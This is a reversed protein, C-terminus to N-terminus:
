DLRLRGSALQAVLESDGALFDVGPLDAIGVWEIAAFVRNALTGAYEPILFFTLTIPERDPYQHHTKWLVRGVTADIALEEELERHMCTALGEGPEVKGGPFEWKGPHHGGFPRQCILVHRGRVIVGATVQLLDGVVADRTRACCAAGM